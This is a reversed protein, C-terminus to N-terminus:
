KMEKKNKARLEQRLANRTALWRAYDVPDIDEEDFNQSKDDEKILSEIYLDILKVLEDTLWKDVRELKRVIVMEDTEPQKDYIGIALTSKAHHQRQLKAIAEKLELRTM